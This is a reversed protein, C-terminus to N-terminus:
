NSKSEVLIKNKLLILEDEPLESFDRPDNWPSKGPKAEMDPYRPILHAHVHPVTNGLISMNIRESGTVRRLISMMTRIDACYAFYEEEPIDEVSDYHNNLSLITRGYFRADNYISITSVNLEGVPHYLDFGCHCSTKM